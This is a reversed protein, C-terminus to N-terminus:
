MIIVLLCKLWFKKWQLKTVWGVTCYHMLMTSLHSLKPFCWHVFWLFPKKRTAYLTSLYFYTLFWNQFWFIISVKRRVRRQLKAPPCNQHVFSTSLRSSTALVLVPPSNFLLFKVAGWCQFAEKYFWFAWYRELFQFRGSTLLLYIIFLTYRVIRRIMLPPRVSLIQGSFILPPCNCM